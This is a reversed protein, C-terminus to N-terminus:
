VDIIREGARKDTTGYLYVGFGPAEEYGTLNYPIECIVTYKVKGRYLERPPADTNFGNFYIFVDRLAKDADGTRTYGFKTLNVKRQAIVMGPTIDSRKLGSAAGGAARYISLSDAISISSVYTKEAEAYSGRYIYFAFKKNSENRNATFTEGATGFIDQVPIQHSDNLIHNSNGGTSDITFQFSTLPDQKTMSKKKADYVNDKAYPNGSVFLRGNLELPENALHGNYVFSYLQYQVPGYSLYKSGLVTTNWESYGQSEYTFKAPLDKVSVGKIDYIARYPNYTTYTVVADTFFAGANENITHYGFKLYVYDYMMRKIEDWTGIPYDRGTKKKLYALM